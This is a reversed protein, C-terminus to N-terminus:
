PTFCDLDNAFEVPGAYNKKILDLTETERGLTRLMRHSLVLQKVGADHAIRGIVSPPMHLYRAVGTAGEPVANHAVLLDAQAALRELHGSDGNADGSFVVSKGGAEIRWALAPISGHIVTVAAARLRDNGFVPQVADGPKRRAGIKAGTEGVDHPQLKYTDTALPSLFDGLYRYAGRTSDFLTRVFTVTSPAFKNGRPGYVPLPRRRDEFFSSKILAPLDATHDVHLHTLLIVDLDSVTAGSEGFRLAAGGGIDVLVRPKGDIWVLYSSSARKDGLEPGGSGLVQVAVEATGCSQAAVAAIWLLGSLGVALRAIL